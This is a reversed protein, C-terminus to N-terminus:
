PSIHSESLPLRLRTSRAELVLMGSLIAVLAVLQMVATVYMGVLITAVALLAGCIRFIRPEIRLTRRFFLDGLLYLALNSDGLAVAFPTPLPHSVDAIAEELAAAMIVIGLLMPIYSYFYANIALRFREGADVSSIAGVAAENDGVFYTWWLASALALGLLLAIAVPVDLALNSDGIGVAVISEGLAVIM